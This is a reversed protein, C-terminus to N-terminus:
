PPFIPTRLHWTYRRTKEISTVRHCCRLIWWSAFDARFMQIIQWKDDTDNTGMFLHHQKLGVEQGDSSSWDSSVHSATLAFTKEAHYVCPIKEVYYTCNPWVILTRSVGDRNKSKIEHCAHMSHRFDHSCGKESSLSSLHWEGALDCMSMNQCPWYKM